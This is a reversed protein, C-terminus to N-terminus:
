HGASFRGNPDVARGALHYEWHVHAGRALGTDGVEAVIQGRRVQQGAFVFIARCHASLTVAGDDHVIVLLNGYGRVKNDSYAVIGPNVAFLPTGRPAGVDIGRHLLSEFPPKRTYGFRRWLTGAPVPWLMDTRPDHPGGAAKIWADRPGDYLLHGVTQLTGLELQEARLADSGFPEAVRRPGQCFHEYPPDMAECGQAPLFSRPQAAALGASWREANQLQSSGLQEHEDIGDPSGIAVQPAAVTRLDVSIRLGGARLTRELLAATPLTDLTVGAIGAMTFGAQDTTGAVPAREVLNRIARVYRGLRNRDVQPSWALDDGADFSRWLAWLDLAPNGGHGIRLVRAAMPQVLLMAGLQERTATTIHPGTIISVVQRQWLRARAELQASPDRSRELLVGNVRVGALTRTDLQLYLWACALLGLGVGSLGVLWRGLLLYRLRSQLTLRLRDDLGEACWSVRPQGARATNASVRGFRRRLADLPPKHGEAAAPM